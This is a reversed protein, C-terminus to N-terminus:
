PVARGASDILIEASVRCHCLSGVAGLGGEEVREGGHSGALRAPQQRQTSLYLRGETPYSTSSTTSYVATTLTPSIVPLASQMERGCVPPWIM